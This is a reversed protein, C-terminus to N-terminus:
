YRDHLESPSRNERLFKRANTLIQSIRSESVGTKKGIESMTLGHLYYLLIVRRTGRKLGRCLYTISDVRKHSPCDLIGLEDGPDSLAVCRQNDAKVIGIIKSESLGTSQALDADTPMAGRAHALRERCASVARIKQRVSRLVDRSRMWDAIAGTLHPYLYTRFRVNRKLDFNPIASRLVRLAVNGLVDDAHYEMGKLALYLRVKGIIWPWHFELIVNRDQDSRTKHYAKWLHADPAETRKRPM